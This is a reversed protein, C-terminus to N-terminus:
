MEAPAKGPRHIYDNIFTLYKAVETCVGPGDKPGCGGSSMVGVQVLKGGKRCVLPGGYDGQPLLVCLKSKSEVIFEM